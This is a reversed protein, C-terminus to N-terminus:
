KKPFAGPYIKRDGGYGVWGAGQSVGEWCAMEWMEYDPGHNRQWGMAMTWPRTYVKPDDITAQFHMVNKDIMTLREVVHIDDSFFNGLHDLWTRDKQNTVDIVLTNGEWRGRSDGAFLHIDPGIHPRGDAHVVHFAHSFDNLMLIYGPAQLLQLGQASYAYQPSGPPVCRQIPDHYTSYHTEREAAAWPQYPIKGDAPDIVSSRGGSGDMSEPHEEINEMNRIGIRLWFGQFDPKGDATRPPDFERAKAMACRHFQAPEEPCGGFVGYPRIPAPGAGPLPSAFPARQAAAPTQLGCSFAMIIIVQMMGRRVPNTM